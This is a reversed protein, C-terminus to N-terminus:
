FCIVHHKCSERHQFGQCDCEDEDKWCIEVKFTGEHFGHKDQPIDKMEENFRPDFCEHIDRSLDCLSESDYEKHFIFKRMEVGIFYGLGQM